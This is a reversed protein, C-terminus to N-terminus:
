EEKISFIISNYEYLEEDNFVTCSDYYCSRNICKMYIEHSNIDDTLANNLLHKVSTDKIPSRNMTM